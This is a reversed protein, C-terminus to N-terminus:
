AHMSSVSSICIYVATISILISSICIFSVLDTDSRQCVTCHLSTPTKQGCMKM